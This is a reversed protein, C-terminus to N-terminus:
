SAGNDLQALQTTALAIIGFDRLADVEAQTLAGVGHAVLDGRKLRGGVIARVPQDVGTAVTTADQLVAIPTQSGDAAGSAYHTLKGSATVRGLVTGAAYSINGAGLLTNDEHVPDWLRIGDPRNTTIEINAM